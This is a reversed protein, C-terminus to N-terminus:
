ARWSFVIELLFSFFFSFFKQQIWNTHHKLLKLCWVHLYLFFSNLDPMLKWYLFFLHFALSFFLFNRGWLSSLVPWNKKNTVKKKLLFSTKKNEQFFFLFSFFLFTLMRKSTTSSAFWSCILFFFNNVEWTKPSFRTAKKCTKTIRAKKVPKKLFFVFSFLLFLNKISRLPFFFSAFVITEKHNSTPM